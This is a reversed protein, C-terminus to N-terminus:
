LHFNVMIQMTAGGKGIALAFQPNMYATKTGIAGGAKAETWQSFREVQFPLEKIPRTLTFPETCFCSVTYALDSSKKYQSLVLSLYQDEQGQLDYRVLVHPNNTYAGTLICHGMKGPYWIRLRRATNRHLHVTLYDNVERGEQEQKAVHRSVLIWVTARREAVDKAFFVIYQPNEGVNFSDDDPAVGQAWFGHRVMQHSFLQPNWSLHFNEFYKLIDHWSIWFVGDEKAEVSRPTYGFEERLLPTWNSHDYCSYRGKWEQRGWPNKLLLLRTGDNAQVVNLVAYAHGTM